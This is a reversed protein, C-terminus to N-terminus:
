VSRHLGGEFAHAVEDSQMVLQGRARVRWKPGMAALHVNGLAQLAPKGEETPSSAIKSDVALQETQGTPDRDHEALVCPRLVIIRSDIRQILGFHRLQDIAHM